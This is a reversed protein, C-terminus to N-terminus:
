GGGVPPFLSITDNENLMQELKGDLGNVLLIAVQDAPINLEDILDMIKTEQSIEKEIIKGRGIRFTAFLKITIKM